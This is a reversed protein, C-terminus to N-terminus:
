ILVSSHGEFLLLLRETKNQLSVPLTRGMIVDSGRHLTEYFSSAYRRFPTPIWMQSSSTFGRFPRTPVSEGSVQPQKAVGGVWNNLWCRLPTDTSRAPLHEGAM